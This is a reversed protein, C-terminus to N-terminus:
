PAPLESAQIRESPDNLGRVRRVSFRSVDPPLTTALLRPQLPISARLMLVGQRDMASSTWDNM